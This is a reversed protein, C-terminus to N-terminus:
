IEKCLKMANEGREITLNNKMLWWVSFLISEEM